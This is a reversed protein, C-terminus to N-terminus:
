KYTKLLDEASKRKEASKYAGELNTTKREVENMINHYMQEPIIDNSSNLISLAENAEQIFEDVQDYLNAKAISRYKRLLVLYDEYAKKLKSRYDM